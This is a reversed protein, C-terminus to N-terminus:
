APDGMTVLRTVQSKTVAERLFARLEDDLADAEDIFVVIRSLDGFYQFARKSAGGGLHMVVYAPLTLIVFRALESKGAGFLAGLSAHLRYSGLLRATVVLYLVRLLNIENAIGSASALRLFRELISPDELLAESQAEVTDGRLGLLSDGARASETAPLKAPQPEAFVEYLGRTDIGLLRAIAWLSYRRPKEAPHLSDNRCVGSGNVRSLLFTPKDGCEGSPCLLLYTDPSEEYGESPLLQRRVENLFSELDTMMIEAHQSHDDTM